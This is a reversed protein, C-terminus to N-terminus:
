WAEIIPLLPVVETLPRTLTALLQAEVLVGLLQVDALREVGKLVQQESMCWGWQRREADYLPTAKLAEYRVRAKDPNCQLEVLVGLLEAKAERDRRCVRQEANMQEHWQDRKADYFPTSKLREYLARASEPNFQAEVLVGLLQTRANRDTKEVAQGRRMCWNWQGRAADYLPTAKLKEYLVLAETPSYMAETLVGVLQTDAYRISDHGLAESWQGRAADYLQTTKLKEYRKRAAAPDFQVETLVGLLQACSYRTASWLEQGESMYHNWQGLEADFLPTAKLAAYLERPRYVTREPFAGALNLEHITGAGQGLSELM